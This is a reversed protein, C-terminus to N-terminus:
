NFDPALIEFAGWDRQSLSGTGERLKLAYGRPDGNVFFGAPLEGGFMEAVREEVASVAADHDFGEVNCYDEAASHAQEEVELLPALSSEQYGIAQLEALHRERQDADRRESDCDVCRDTANERLISPELMLGCGGACEQRWSFKGVPNGNLDVITGDDDQQVELQDAVARLERAIDAADQMADNGMEIELKFM